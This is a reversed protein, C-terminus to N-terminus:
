PWLRGGARAGSLAGADPGADGGRSEARWGCHARPVLRAGAAGEGEGEM